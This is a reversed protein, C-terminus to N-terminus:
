KSYGPNKYLVVKVQLTQYKMEVQWKNKLRELEEDTFDNFINSYFIYKQKDFDKRPFEREDDSLDIYKLPYANPIGSGTENVPINNEDIYAIMKKRLNYYPLHALTADWGQSIRDPYVWFNGSLLGILAIFYLFKMCKKEPSKKLILYAILSSFVILSPLLYRHGSLNKHILIGPSFVILSILFLSFLLHVHKDTKWKKQLLRIFFWFAICWLFLRGYDIIRWILIIINRLFGKLNVTEYCGEWASDIPDYIIWGRQFFHYFLYGSALIFAPIYLISINVLKKLQLKNNIIIFEHYLHFIGIVACSMMGRMNIICLGLLSFVLMIRKRYIISNASLFFFFILILEGSVVTIQTLLSTDIIVLLLAANLVQKNPIFIRLFRYLQWTLGISFPLMMLHGTILSRGFFSWMIALLWGMLPPHGPDLHQPPLLSLGHQFFWNAQRSDMIDKDWFFANQMTAMTLVIVFLFFPWLQLIEKKLSSTKELM